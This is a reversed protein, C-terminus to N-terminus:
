LWSCGPMYLFWCKYLLLLGVLVVIWGRKGVPTRPRGDGDVSSPSSDRSMTPVALLDVQREQRTPRDNLPQPTDSTVGGDVSETPAEVGQDSHGADLPTQDDTEVRVTSDHDDPVPEPSVTTEIIDPSPSLSGDRNFSDGSSEFM